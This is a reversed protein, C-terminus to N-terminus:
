RTAGAISSVERRIEEGASKIGNGIDIWVVGALDSPLELPGKHLLLVRGSRRGFAGCFFGLEFIVNQRSRRRENTSASGQVTDDPTLLVFVFDARAGFDEFKEIITKGCSPQDRLVIPEQWRLSNQIYDKLELVASEDHGHVIFALPARLVGGVGLRILASVFAKEGDSKRVFQVGPQAAVWGEADSAVLDSTLLILRIAPNSKLLRRAVCVGTNFGGRTEESTIGSLAPDNPLMLDIVAGDFAQANEAVAAEASHVLRTDAQRDALLECIVQGYFQDDEVILLRMSKYGSEEARHSRM